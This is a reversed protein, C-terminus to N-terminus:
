SGTYAATTRDAAARAEEAPTGAEISARCWDDSSMRMFTILEPSPASEDHQVSARTVLHEALGLFALDWGVGVAGPGFEIWRDDDTHASHELRLHTGDDDAGTLVVDIWSVEGGYEWTAALHRPPECDTITGSANGELEYRGGLRLEGRVPLLWRPIREPNTLADWVDYPPSPFDREAIVIRTAKGDREGGAVQRTIGGLNAFIDM